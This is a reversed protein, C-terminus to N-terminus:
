QLQEVLWGAVIPAFAPPLSHGSEFFMLDSGEPLLSHLKRVDPPSSLWDSEGIALLAPVSARAAFQFADTPLPSPTTPVACGVVAALRPELASLYLAILGGMSYGAVAMRAPDIEPRGALYDLSRRADIASGIIMDRNRTYLSDGFTLYVPNQYDNTASREGHLRLDFAFVGIGSALLSDRLRVRDDRGWRAKSNGLGHLLVVVPVRDGGSRPLALDGPVREGGHTTFVVKEYSVRDEEWAEVVRPALPLGPDYNYFQTVVEFVEDSTKQFDARHERQAPRQQAQVTGSGLAVLGGLFLRCALPGIRSIM